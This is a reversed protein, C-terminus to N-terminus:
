NGGFDNEGLDLVEPKIVLTMRGKERDLDVYRVFFVVLAEVGHSRIGSETEYGVAFGIYNGLSQDNKLEIPIISGDDGVSSIEILPQGNTDLGSFTIDFRGFDLDELVTATASVNIQGWFRDNEVNILDKFTTGKPVRLNASIKEGNKIPIEVWPNPIKSAELFDIFPLMINGSEDGMKYLNDLFKDRLRLSTFESLSMDTSHTNKKEVWEGCNESLTYAGVGAPTALIVVFGIFPLYNIVAQSAQSANFIARYVEKPMRTYINETYTLIGPDKVFKVNPYLNRLYELTKSNIGEPYYIANIRNHPIFGASLIANPNNQNKTYVVEVEELAYEVLVPTRMSDQIIGVQSKTYVKTIEDWLDVRQKNFQIQWLLNDYLVKQEQTAYGGDILPKLKAIEGELDLVVKTALKPDWLRGKVIKNAYDVATQYGVGLPLDESRQTAVWLGSPNINRTNAYNPIKVNHRTFIGGPFKESIREFSSLGEFNTVVEEPYGLEKLVKGSILSWVVTGHHSPILGRNRIEQISRLAEPPIGEITKPLESLGSGIPNEPPKVGNCAALVAAGLSTAAVKLFERRTVPNQPNQGTTELENGVTPFEQNTNVRNTNLGKIEKSM